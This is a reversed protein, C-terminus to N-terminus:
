VGFWFVFQFHQDDLFLYLIL